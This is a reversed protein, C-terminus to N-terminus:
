LNKGKSSNGFLAWKNVLELSSKLADYERRIKARVERAERVFDYSIQFWRDKGYAEELPTKRKRM